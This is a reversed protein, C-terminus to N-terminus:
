PPPAFHVNKANYLEHVAWVNLIRLHVCLCVERGSYEKIVKRLEQKSFQLQYGVEEVRVGSAVKSEIGVFFAQSFFWFRKCM